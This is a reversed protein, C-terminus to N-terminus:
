STTVISHLEQYSRKPHIGAPLNPVVYKAFFADADAKTEWIDAVVWGEEYSYSTHLIFGPAKSIVERLGNLVGDYGEETQGKVQATVLIAM